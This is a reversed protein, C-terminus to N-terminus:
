GINPYQGGRKQVPKGLRAFSCHLFSNPALPQAWIVLVQCDVNDLLMEIFEILFGSLAEPGKPPRINPLKQNGPFWTSLRSEPKKYVAPLSFMAM